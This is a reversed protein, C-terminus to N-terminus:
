SRNTIVEAIVFKGVGVTDFRDNPRKLKVDYHYEGSPKDTDTPLLKVSTVGETPNIHETIDKKIIATDDTQVNDSKKKVTFFVTAGTLDIDHFKMGITRSNEKYIKITKLRIIKLEGNTECNIM